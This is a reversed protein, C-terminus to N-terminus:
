MLVNKICKEAIFMESYGNIPIIGYGIDQLFSFLEKKQEVFWDHSWAEFLIKPYNSKKLTEVAGKLVNLENGEVDIKILGIDEINFKDLTKVEVIESRFANKHTPLDVISSGGGDVSIVKLTASGEQEPSGLAVNHATINGSNNLAINACLYNYTNKQCEFSVVNKCRKNSAFLISYTGVHAGIDVFNKNKSFVSKMAWKILPHEPIGGDSSTFIDLTTKNPLLFVPKKIINTNFIFDSEPTYLTM